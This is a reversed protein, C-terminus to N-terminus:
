LRQMHLQAAPKLAPEGTLYGLSTLFRDAQITTASIWPEWNFFGHPQGRAIWQECRTGLAAARKLFGDGHPKLPDADGFFIITPVTSEHLFLTPSIEKAINNGEADTFERNLLTLNLAPNYLVLANPKPSIELDDSKADYATVLLAAAALHGGASGGSAVIKAPDIGFESAHGRLWRMASKADETAIDPTTKHKDFVRYDARVTVLGRTAFYEAQPVFQQASGTRWGGGFFFLIAPRKDDAKWAPPFHFQLRLDAQPTKKYVHRATKLNASVLKVSGKEAFGASPEDASAPGGSCLAIFCSTLLIKVLRDHTHGTPERRDTIASRRPNRKM